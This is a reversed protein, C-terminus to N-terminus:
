FGPNWLSVTLNVRGNKLFVVGEQELRKRQEHAGGFVYGSALRGDLFVVRHCPIAHTNTNAHLAHGIRRSDRTGVCKAVLGYTAVKGKPIHRVVEYVQEFFSHTM